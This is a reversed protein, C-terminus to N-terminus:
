PRKTAHFDKDAFLYVIWTFQVHHFDLPPVSLPFLFKGIACPTGNFSLLWATPFKLFNCTSMLDTGFRKWVAEQKQKFQFGFVWGFGSVGVPQSLRLFIGNIKWQGVFNRRFHVTWSSCPTSWTLYTSSPQFGLHNLQHSCSGKIRILSMVEKNIVEHTNWLLKISVDCCESESWVLLIPSSYYTSINNLSFKALM